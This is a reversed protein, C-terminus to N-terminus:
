GSPLRADSRLNRRVQSRLRAAGLLAAGAVISWAARGDVDVPVRSFVAAVGLMARALLATPAQLVAALGPWWSSVAGGALGTVFGLVTLPGALPVAIVNAPLAALPV